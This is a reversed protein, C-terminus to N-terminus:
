QSSSVPVRKAIENRLRVYEAGVIGIRRFEAPHWDYLLALDDDSWTDAMLAALKGHVDSVRAAVLIARLNAVSGTPPLASAVPAPAPAPAAVASPEYGTLLKITKVPESLGVAEFKDALESIKYKFPHSSLLRLVANLDVVGGQYYINWVFSGHGHLAYQAECIERWLATGTAPVTCSMANRLSRILKQTTEDRHQYPDLTNVYTEATIPPSYGRIDNALTSLGADRYEDALQGLTFKCEGLDKFFLLPSFTGGNYYITSIFADGMVKRGIYQWLPRSEGQHTQFVGDRARVLMVPLDASCLISVNLEPTKVTRGM